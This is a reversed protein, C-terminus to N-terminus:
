QPPTSQHLSAIEQCRRRNGSSSCHATRWTGSRSLRTSAASHWLQRRRFFRGFQVQAQLPSRDRAALHFLLQVEKLRVAERRDLNGRTVPRDFIAVRQKIRHFPALQEDGCGTSRAIKRIRLRLLAFGFHLLEQRYDLCETLHLRHAQDDARRAALQALRPPQGGLFQALIKDLVGALPQRFVRVLVARRDHQLRQSAVFGGEQPLHRVARTVTM